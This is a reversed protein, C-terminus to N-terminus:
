AMGVPVITCATTASAPAGPLGGVTGMRLKSPPLNGPQSLAADAVEDRKLLLPDLQVLGTGGAVRHQQAETVPGDPQASPMLDGDGAESSARFRGPQPPEERRRGRRERSGIPRPPRVM